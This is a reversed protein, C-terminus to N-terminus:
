RLRGACAEFRATQHYSHDKQDHDRIKRLGFKNEEDTSAGVSVRVFSDCSEGYGLGPVVSVHDEELLRTCFQESTLESPSISVFLYFTATGEMYGLGIEDMYNAMKARRRVVDHIQPTTIDLIRHFHKAVYYELITPPCTIVHDNVKLVNSIVHEHAVVYGLRWGSVGYNKSISNFLIVHNKERDLKGLSVFSDDTLFDSYTEDSLIWIDYRRALELLHSLEEKAFVYGRPNNPNNIIIAKTKSTIYDEFDFVTKGRPVPVPAGYCLKIQEPYSVWAPEHIIM